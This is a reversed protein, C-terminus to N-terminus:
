MEHMLTADVKREMQVGFHMGFNPLDRLQPFNHMRFESSYAHSSSRVQVATDPGSAGRILPNAACTRYADQGM